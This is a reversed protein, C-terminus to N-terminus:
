PTPTSSPQGKSLRVTGCMIPNYQAPDNLNTGYHVQAAWGNDPISTVNPFTKTLTATGQSDATLTGLNYVINGITQCTGTHLHAAHNSNPALGHVNMQVTLTGNALSLQAVGNSQENPDATPGIIASFTNGAAGPATGTAVATSTETVTGTATATASAPNYPKINGCAIAVKQAAATGTGNYIQIRMNSATLPTTVSTITATNKINGTADATLTTSYLSTAAATPAATSTSTGTPAPTAATSTAAGAAAGTTPCTSQEIHVPHPSNPTFGILNPNLTLSKSGANYTMRIVGNPTHVMVARATVAATATGTASVTGTAAVGPPAVLGTVAAKANTGLAIFVTTLILTCLTMSIFIAHSITSRKRSSKFM